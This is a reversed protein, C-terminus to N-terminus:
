GGERGLVAAGIAGGREGLAAPVIPIDPRDSAGELQAAFAERTPEFLAEGAGVLGGGIVIVSPDLINALNALGLALWWAFDVLIAKASPDGEGAARVVHEGRVDDPDGGALATVRPARGASAADRAIRGLGSGSAYREWCGRRGCGCPPGQTDVVVHGIEGAFNVAGRLIRGGSVIGGGIGTGLTVFLVDDHGAAAGLSREGAVACTADNDVTVVAADGVRAQLGARVELGNAGLLNPAFLLKGHIDVLGPVGIGVHAPLRSASSAAERPFKAFLDECLLTLEDLLSAGQERTDRREEVLVDGGAGIGVGLIKTGGVDIGFSVAEDSEAPDRGPDPDAGPRRPNM